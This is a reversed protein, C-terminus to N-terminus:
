EAKVSAIRNRGCPRIHLLRARGQASRYKGRIHNRGEISNKLHKGHCRSSKWPETSLLEFEVARQDQQDLAFAIKGNVDQVLNRDLSAYLETRQKGCIIWPWGDIKAIYFPKPFTHAKLM